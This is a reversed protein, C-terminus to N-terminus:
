TVIEHLFFIENIRKCATKLENVNDEGALISTWACLKDVDLLEPSSM